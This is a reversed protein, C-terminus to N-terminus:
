ITNNRIGNYAKYQIKQIGNYAKYQITEYGMMDHRMSCPIAHFASPCACASLKQAASVQLVTVVAVEEVGEGGVVEKGAM